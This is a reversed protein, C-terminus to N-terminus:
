KFAPASSYNKKRELIQYKRVAKQHEELTSSFYHSGDGKAVFYLDEGETPHLAAQIAERGVLAIPTPPLGGYKYTNYLNAKDKLHRTRLNGRYKDGLGYIVTPDTQLRMGKQLRRVFVGSIKARESAVGTEKEIISAMILADYAKTYPLFLERKKWEDTLVMQLRNYAKQLIDKDSMGSHYRYTDPFFLGELAPSRSADASLTLKLKERWAKGLQKKLKPQKQLQLYAQELTWGEVLTVQYYRIDGQEIKELLRRATIGQQFFYEGAKIHRGAGFVRSYIILWRPDELVNKKELSYALAHLSGGRALNYELGEASIQLPTDMYKQLKFNAVGVVLSLMLFIALFGKIIRM